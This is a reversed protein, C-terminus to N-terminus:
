IIIGYCDSNSMFKVWDEFWEKDILFVRDNNKIIFHSIGVKKEKDHSGNINKVDHSM